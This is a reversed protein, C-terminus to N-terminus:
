LAYLATQLTSRTSIRAALDRMWASIGLRLLLLMELAGYLFGWLLLWYGGEFYADSRARQQPSLQSLYADTAADVDFTEQAAAVLPVLLVLILAWCCRYKM